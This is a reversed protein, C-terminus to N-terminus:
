GGLIWDLHYRAVTPLAARIAADRLRCLIPNEVSSNTATMWSLRAITATRSIRRREYARLCTVIPEETALCEALVVASELAQCAGQGLDPTCAHAADGLLTIPGVGWQSVPVLDRVRTHVIEAAPTAEVLARVEWSWGDFTRVLDEAADGHHHERAARPAYWFSSGDALRAYWFRPGRGITAVAISQPVDRADRPAIGVWAEQKTQRPEPGGVVCTRVASGIGDAAVVADAIATTGDSFDLRVGHADRNVGVVRRGRQLIATELVGELHALLCARRVVVTPSGARASWDGVPLAALLDGRESRVETLSLEAADDTALPCGVAGLARTANSWLLLAGRASTAESAEFVVVDYVLRSLAVAAALVGVGAGIVASRLGARQTRRGDLGRLKDVGGGAMHDVATTTM